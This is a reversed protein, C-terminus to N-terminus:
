KVKILYVLGFSHPKNDGGHDHGGAKDMSITHKHYPGATPTDKQITNKDPHVISKNQGIKASHTHTKEELLYNVGFTKNFYQEELTGAIYTPKHESISIGTLDPVKKGYLPSQTDDIVQGMCIQWRDSFEWEGWHPIIAGVPIDDLLGVEEKKLNEYALKYQGKNVAEAKQALTMSPDIQAMDGTKIFGKQGCHPLIDDASCGCEVSGKPACGNLAVVAALALLWTSFKM